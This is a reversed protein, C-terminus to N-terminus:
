FPSIGLCRQYYDPHFPDCEDTMSEVLGTFVDVTSVEGSDHGIGSGLWFGISYAAAETAYPPLPVILAGAVAKVPPPGWLIAASLALYVVAVAAPGTVKSWHTM